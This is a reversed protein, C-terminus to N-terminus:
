KCNRRRDTQRGNRKGNKKGRKFLKVAVKEVMSRYIDFSIKEGWEDELYKMEDDILLKEEISLSDYEKCHMRLGAFPSNMVNGLGVTAISKDPQRGLQEWM